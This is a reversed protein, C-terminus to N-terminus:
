IRSPMRAATFPTFPTMSTAGTLAFAPVSAQGGWGSDFATAFNYSGVNDAVVLPTAVDFPNEKLGLWTAAADMGEQGYIAGVIGGGIAGAAMGYPGAVSGLLTGEEAGLLAAAGAGAAYGLAAGGEAGWYGGGWRGVFDLGTTMWGINDAAVQQQITSYTSSADEYFAYATYVGLAKMGVDLGALAQGPTITQSWQWAQGGYYEAAGVGAFSTIDSLRPGSNYSARSLSEEAM